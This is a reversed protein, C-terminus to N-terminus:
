DSCAEGRELCPAPHLAPLPRQPHPLSKLSMNLVGAKWTVNWSTHISVSSFDLYLVHAKLSWM